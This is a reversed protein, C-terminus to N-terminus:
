QQGQKAIEAYIQALAAAQEVPTGGQPPEIVGNNVIIEVDGVRYAALTTVKVQARTPTIVPEAPTPTPTPTPEPDTIHRGGVPIGWYLNEARCDTIIGNRHIVRHRPTPREEGFAELVVRDVRMTTANGTRASRMYVGVHGNEYIFTALDKGMIGRCVGERNVWYLGPVIRASIVQRWEPDANLKRARSKKTPSKVQKAQKPQGSFPSRKIVRKIKPTWELNEARNDMLDGNLHKVTYNAAPKPGIFFHAVLEDLRMQFYGIYGSNPVRGLNATLYDGQSSRILSGKLIGVEPSIIYGNRSIRYGDKVGPWRLAVTDDDLATAIRPADSGAEVVQANGNAAAVAMEQRFQEIPNTMTDEGSTHAVVIPPQPADQGTDALRIPAIGFLKRVLRRVNRDHRRGHKDMVRVHAKGGSGIIPVPAKTLAVRVKGTNSVEITDFEPDRKWFERALSYNMATM